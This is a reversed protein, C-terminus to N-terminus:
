GSPTKWALAAVVGSVGSAFNSGGSAIGNV